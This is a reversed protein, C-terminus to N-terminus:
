LWKPCEDVNVKVIGLKGDHQEAMTDLIPGMMRCPGCWPAWFDVLVARDSDLVFEDFDDDTVTRVKSMM